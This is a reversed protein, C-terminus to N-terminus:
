HVSCYFHKVREPHELCLKDGLAEEDEDDFDFATKSIVPDKEVIEYLININM